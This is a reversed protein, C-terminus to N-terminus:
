PSCSPRRAVGARAWPPRAAVPLVAGLFGGDLAASRGARDDAPQALLLQRQGAALGPHRRDVLAAIAPWRSPPSCARVAGGAPHRPQGAGRGPAAPRAPPPLVLQAPRADAPDRPPLRPLHPRALLPRRAAQDARRRVRRPVAALRVAVPGPRAPGDRGARPLHRPLRGRAAAVGLRLRVLDPRRQRDVPLAGVSCPGSPWRCGAGLPRGDPLAPSPPPPWGSRRGPSSWPLLRDSYRLHFLSPPGASRSPARPVAAGATLGREGLLPRFQALAVIFAIVYVLAVLHQVVWRATTYDPAALWDPM